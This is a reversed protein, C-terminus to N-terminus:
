DLEDFSAEGIDRRFFVSKVAGFVKGFIGPERAVLDESSM